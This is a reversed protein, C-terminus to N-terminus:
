NNLAKALFPKPRTVSYYDEALGEAATADTATPGLPDPLPVSATRTVPTNSENPGDNAPDTPSPPGEETPM